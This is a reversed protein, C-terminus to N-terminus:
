RRVATIRAAGAGVGAGIRRSTTSSSRARSSAIRRTPASRRSGRTTPPVASRPTARGATAPRPRRGVRQRADSAFLFSIADGGLLSPAAGSRTTSSTSATPSPRTSRRRSTPRSAASTASARTPSSRRGRPSAPSRASTSPRLDVADVDANGAATSATHTGHGNDDRASNFEDPTPASSPAIAHRADPARRDAQQQVHVSRREPQPRHQRVPVALAPDDLPPTPTGDDAFSPHEPWIGTDIIGVVVGKM